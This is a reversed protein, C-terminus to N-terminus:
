RIDTSKVFQDALETIYDNLNDKESEVLTFATVVKRSSDFLIMFGQVVLVMSMLTASKIIYNFEFVPM